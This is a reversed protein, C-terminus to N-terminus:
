TRNGKNTLIESSSLWPIRSPIEERWEQILVWVMILGVLSLELFSPPACYAYGVLNLWDYFSSNQGQGILLLIDKELGNLSRTFNQRFMSLGITEQSWDNFYDIRKRGINFSLNIM